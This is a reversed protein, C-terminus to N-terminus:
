GYSLRSVLIKSVIDSAFESIAVNVMVELSLTVVDVDDLGLLLEPVVRPRAWPLRADFGGEPLLM